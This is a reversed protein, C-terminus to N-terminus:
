DGLYVQPLQWTQPPITSVRRPQSAATRLVIRTSSTQPPPLSSSGQFEKAKRLTALLNEIERHVRRTQSVVIAASNEFECISGPGGLADWSTPEITTTIVEILSVYDAEWSHAEDKAGPVRWMVLDRVPYTRTDLMEPSELNERSTVLIVNNRITFDLDLDELVLRLLSELPVSDIQRTVRTDTDIGLAELSKVSIHIPTQFQQSLSNVVEHLPADVVYLSGRRALAQELREEDGPVEDGRVNGIRLATQARCPVSWALLFLTALLCCCAPASKAYLM